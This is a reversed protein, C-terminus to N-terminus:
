SSNKQRKIKQPTFFVSGGQWPANSGELKQFQSLSMHPTILGNMTNVVASQDLARGVVNRTFAFANMTSGAQIKFGNTEGEGKM